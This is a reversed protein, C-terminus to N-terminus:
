PPRLPADTHWPSEESGRPVLGARGTDGPAVRCQNLVGVGGHSTVPRCVPGLLDIYTGASRRGPVTDARGAARGDTRSGVRLAREVLTM